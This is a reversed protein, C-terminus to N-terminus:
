SLVWDPKGKFPVALKPRYADSEVVSRLDDFLFDSDPLAILPQGLKSFIFSDVGATAAAEMLRKPPALVHEDTFAFTGWHM